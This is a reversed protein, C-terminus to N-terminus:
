EEISLEWFFMPAGLTSRLGAGPSCRGVGALHRRGQHHDAPPSNSATPKRARRLRRLGDLVCLVSDLPWRVFSVTEFMHRMSGSTEFM